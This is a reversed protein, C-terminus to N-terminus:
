FELSRLLPMRFSGYQPGFLMLRWRIFNTTRAVQNRPNTCGQMLLIDGHYDFDRKVNKIDTSFNNPVSTYECNWPTLVSHRFKTDEPM